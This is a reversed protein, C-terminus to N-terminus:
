KARRRVKSQNELYQIRSKALDVQKSLVFLSPHPLLLPHPLAAGRDAAPLHWEGSSQEGETAQSDGEAGRFIVADLGRKKAARGGQEETEGRQRKGSEKQEKDDDGETRRGCSCTAPRKMADQLQDHTQLKELRLAEI